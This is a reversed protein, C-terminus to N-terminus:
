KEVHPTTLDLSENKIEVLNEFIDQRESEKEVDEVIEVLEQLVDIMKSSVKQLTENLRRTSEQDKEILKRFTEKLVEMPDESNDDPVYTGDKTTVVFSDM